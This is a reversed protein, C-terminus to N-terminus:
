GVLEKLLSGVIYVMVAALGGGVLM